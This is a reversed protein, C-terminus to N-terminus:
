LTDNKEKIIKYINLLDEFKYHANRTSTSPLYFYEVNLNKFYKEYLNYSAKGTLFIYKINTNKVIEEIDNVEINKLSSDDSGNIECSKIMDYLGINNLLLFNTKEEITNLNTSYLTEMIKWFRNTKHSYYFNNKRSVVSPISGLILIKTDKNYIPKLTHEVKM